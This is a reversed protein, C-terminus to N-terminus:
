QTTDGSPRLYMHIVGVQDTISDSVAKSIDAETKLLEMTQPSGGVECCTPWGDYLCTKFSVQETRGCIRCKVTSDTM